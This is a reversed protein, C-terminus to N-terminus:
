EETAGKLLRETNRLLLWSLMVVVFATGLLEFRTTLWYEKFDAQSVNTAPYLTLTTPFLLIPRLWSTSAISQAFLIDTLWIIGLLTSCATRSQTLLALCSGLAIFWLLPALWLLQITLFQVLPLWSQTFVPMYLIKLMAISGICLMALCATWSLLLLLRLMGTMQYKRPMTLHLELATDQAIIAGAVVGTALPLFVEAESLLSHAPSQHLFLQLLVFLGVVGLVLIPVLIMTKWALKLEYRLRDFSM